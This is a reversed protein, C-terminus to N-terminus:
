RYSYVIVIGGQGSDGTSHGRGSQSNGWDTVNGPGGSGPAAFPVTGGQVGAWGM